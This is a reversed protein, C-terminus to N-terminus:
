DRRLAAMPDIGTARRAPLYSAALAVTVLLVGVAAFTLPDRPSVEFLLTSMLRTLAYAVPLGIALGLVALTMGEGLVMRLLAPRRAGLAMRIGLEQTRRSVSTALIGGIGLAALLLALLGFSSLVVTNFRQPAASTRVVEELTRVAAVPLAPDLARIRAQVASALSIPDIETRVSIKMSRLAGVLNDGLMSDSVQVWPQFTQSVTESNLPGQKVDAVVGVIRMWPGHTRPNGWAVRRGVPDQDKWFTRAMTENIVIVPESAPQDQPLLYRGRKLPIGLAEFYRGAVWDHAVVYALEGTPNSDAEITFARRERIGLPLDTSAAAASVGPLGGINELLRNYFSRVDAGQPYASAPLSTSLTLVHEARFGPDVSMLRNFSRVLLGGAVLLVVALAFQATVLAGFLRRQRRGTSGSRGGEKLADSAGRRTAELAPLLGCLIATSASLFATFGLVRLDLRVEQLRPLTNPAAAVLATVVWRTVALGLIGGIAALVASEILAQRLLTGRGAGLASRVAMERQRSVARTLMLNALDACAILLVMLVAAFLVLLLTQTRGVTEDRLSVASASIGDALGQLFAPYIELATTRVAAKVEADAQAVTVGPKLRAVVSNNYMSGFAGREMDTFSIPVFLDAPVNNLLPGRNPFTFGRPMVGVITYARRDLVVARGVAAPDSGFKRRWLADSLVAVPQQGEDEERSFARGLVPEVGLTKFLAASARAGIIREPENVGSLEYERNRFAAISGFSTARAEFASYDPASFGIPTPIAKPIGQYLMVLRDAESYPLARLLVTDVVSFIATTAGTALALTGIIAASFFPAQRMRRTAYRVDQWVRSVMVDGRPDQGRGLAAIRRARRRDRRFAMSALLVDASGRMWAFAAGRAGARERERRLCQGFAVAMEGGDRQRAERPLLQLLLGYLFATRRSM